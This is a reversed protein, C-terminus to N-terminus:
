STPVVPNSAASAGSTGFTSTATVSFTYSTGATLGTVTCSPIVGTTCRRSGPSSTVAYSTVPRAGTTPATWSVTASGMGAVAAVTTPASPSLVPRYTWTTSQPGTTAFGGFLVISSTPTAYAGSPGMLGPTFATSTTAWTAGDWVFTTATPEGTTQGGALVLDGLAPDYAMAPLSYTTFATDTVESWQTGRLLWMVNGDDVGPVLAVAQVAPDYAASVPGNV